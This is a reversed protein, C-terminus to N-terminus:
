CPQQIPTSLYTCSTQKEKMTAYPTKFTFVSDETDFVLSLCPFTSDCPLAAKM